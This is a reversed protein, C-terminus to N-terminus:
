LLTPDEFDLVRKRYKCVKSVFVIRLGRIRFLVHRFKVSDAACVHIRTCKM